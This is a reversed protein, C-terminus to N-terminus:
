RSPTSCVRFRPYFAEVLEDAELGRLDLAAAEEWRGPREWDRGLALLHQLYKARLRERPAVAWPAETKNLFPGRREPSNPSVGRYIRKHTAAPASKTDIYRPREALERAPKILLLRPLREVGGPKSPAVTPSTPVSPPV